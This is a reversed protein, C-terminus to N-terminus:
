DEVGGPAPPEAPAAAPRAPTWAGDGDYRAARHGREPDVATLSLWGGDLLGALRDTRALAGAVREVPAEVVLSLRLPQHHPEDSGARVSQLPLGTALDGGNGRHVGVNGVPSQTVKSGSGYGSPDVTAFYYAANIWRTVVAPGALIAELADGDPDTTPDYSHLFVRGDLDLDATLARRGIVFAANGALGWEPRPEAWDAARRETEAVGAARESAAGARADALDARLRDLDAAHSEPVAGDYLGIEDTTTDHEGAVFVTDAPIEHGRERLGARVREDNCIAALV